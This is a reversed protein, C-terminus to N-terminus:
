SGNAQLSATAIRNMNSRVLRRVRFLDTEKLIKDNKNSIPFKLENKTRNQTQNKCHQQNTCLLLSTSGPLTNSEMKLWQHSETFNINTPDSKSEMNQVTENEKRKSFWTMLLSKNSIILSGNPRQPYFNLAGLSQYFDQSFQHSLSTLSKTLKQVESGSFSSKEKVQSTESSFSKNNSTLLHKRHRNPNLVDLNTKQIQITYFLCTIFESNTYTTNPKHTQPKYFKCTPHFPPNTICVYRFPDYSQLNHRTQNM